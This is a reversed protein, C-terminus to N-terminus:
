YNDTSAVQGFPTMTNVDPNDATGIGDSPGVPKSEAATMHPGRAFSVPMPGHDSYVDGHAPETDSM